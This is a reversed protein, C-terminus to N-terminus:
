RLLSTRISCNCPLVYRKDNEGASPVCQIIGSPTFVTEPHIDTNMSVDYDVNIM